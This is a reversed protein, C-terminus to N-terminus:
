RPWNDIIKKADKASWSPEFPPPDYTVAKIFIVIQALVLVVIQVWVPLSNWFVVLNFHAM